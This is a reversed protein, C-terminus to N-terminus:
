KVHVNSMHNYTQKVRLLKRTTWSLRNVYGEKVMVYVIKLQHEKVKGTCVSTFMHSGMNHACSFVQETKLAPRFIAAHAASVHRWV